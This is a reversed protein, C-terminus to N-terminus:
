RQKEAEQWLAKFEKKLTEQQINADSLQQKLSSVEAEKQRTERAVDDQLEAIQRVLATIEDELEQVKKRAAEEQSRVEALTEGLQTKELETRQMTMRIEDKYSQSEKELLRKDMETGRLRVAVESLKKSDEQAREKLYRNEAEACVKGEEAKLVLDRAKALEM